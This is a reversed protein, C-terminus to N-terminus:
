RVLLETHSTESDDGLTSASQANRRRNRIFQVIGAAIMGFLLLFFFIWRLEM